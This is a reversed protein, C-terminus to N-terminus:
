SIAVPDHERLIREDVGCHSSLIECCTVKSLLMRQPISSKSFLLTWTGFRATVHFSSSDCGTTNKRMRLFSIHYHRFRTRNHEPRLTPRKVTTSYNRVEWPRTKHVQIYGRLSMKIWSNRTDAQRQHSCEVVKESPAGLEEKYRMFASSCNGAGSALPM